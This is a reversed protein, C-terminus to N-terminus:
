RGRETTLILTISPSDKLAAGFQRELGLDRALFTAIIDILATRTITPVTVTIEKQRGIQISIPDALLLGLLLLWIM